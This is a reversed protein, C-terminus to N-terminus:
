SEQLLINIAVSPNNNAVRLAQLVKDRDFGMETMREIQEEPLAATVPVPRAPEGRDRAAGNGFLGFGFPNGEPPRPQLQAWAMQQELQEIHQQRQLELTAGMPPVEDKPVASAVLSGLIKNILSSIFSPIRLISQIKYLNSRYFLGAVLGCSALIFSELSSAAMQLGIIYTFSKGTIPVGLIHTVTVRPIDCFYPVLLAFVPGFPGVPHHSLPLEQRHALFIILLELLLSLFFTGFLFNAFKRSGYRREFIRFHYLLISACLLDKPDLFVSRSGIYRLVNHQDFITSYNFDFWGRYSSLPLNFTVSSLVLGGLVGKTVPAHDVFVCCM